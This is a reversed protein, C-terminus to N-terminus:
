STAFFYPAASLRSGRTRRSGRASTAVARPSPLRSRSSRGTRNVSIAFLTDAKVVVMASAGAPLRITPAAATGSVKVAEIAVSQAPPVALPAGASRTAAAAGASALVVLLVALAGRTM